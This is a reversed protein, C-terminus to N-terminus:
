QHMKKSIHYQFNINIARMPMPRFPLMEYYEDFLNSIRASAKWNSKSISVILDTLTYMDMWEDNTTTTFRESIVSQTIGLYVQKMNIGIRGGAQHIPVFINQVSSANIDRLSRIYNYNFSWEVRFRHILGKVQVNSGYNASVAGKEQSVAFLGSEDPLWQIRDYIRAGFISVTTKFYKNLVVAKISMNDSKEIGINQNGGPIWYLNNLTPFRIGRDYSVSTSLLPTWRFKVESSPSLHINDFSRGVVKAGATLKLRSRNYIAFQRLTILLLPDIKGYVTTYAGDMQGDIGYVYKWHDRLLIEQQASVYGSNVMNESNVHTIGDTYLLEEKSFGVSTSVAGLHNTDLRNLVVRLHRDSQHKESVSELLTPPLDRQVDQVWVSLQNRGFRLDQILGLCNVQAHELRKRDLSQLGYPFYPYNNQAASYFTRTRSAIKGHFYTFDIGADVSAFSGAGVFPNLEWVVSDMHTQASTTLNLEGGVPSSFRTSSSNDEFSANDIFFVPILALDIQGNMPNNLPMGNWTIRTQEPGFGRYNLTSLGLAANSRVNMGFETFLLDSITSGNLSFQHISQQHYEQAPRITSEPLVVVTDQALAVQLM